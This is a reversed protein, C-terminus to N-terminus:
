IEERWEPMDLVGQQADGLKEARRKGGEADGHSDALGAVFRAGAGIVAQGLSEEGAGDEIVFFDKIVM